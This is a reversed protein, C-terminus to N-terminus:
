GSISPLYCKNWCEKCLQGAGEVYYLRYDIHENKEYPSDCGCLVCKDKESDKETM